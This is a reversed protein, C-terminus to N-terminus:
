VILRQFHHLTLSFITWSQLHPFFFL